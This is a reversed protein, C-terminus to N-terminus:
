RCAALLYGPFPKWLGFFHPAPLPFIFGPDKLRVGRWAALPAAWSRPLRLPGRDLRLVQGYLTVADFLRRLLDRFADPRWEQVHVPNEPRGDPRVRRRYPSAVFLTGGPRLAARCAALFREPDPLHEITEFSVVADFPGLDAVACADAQVFDLGTTAYRRRAYVVADAAVDVGVVARAGADRLMRSGYGSGCAADLVRLGAVRPGAFAYRAQHEAMVKAPAEGEVVREVDACSTAM